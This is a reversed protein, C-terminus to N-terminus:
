LHVIEEKLSYAIALIDKRSAEDIGNKRLAGMIDDLAAMYEHESINMGKHAEPMSRGEYQGPGGTGASLFTRLHQKVTELKEPESQYPLFRSKIAPNSMHAAVIDDVLRSIGEARGLRDYLTTNQTNDIATSM